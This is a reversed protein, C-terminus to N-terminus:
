RAWQQRKDVRSARWSSIWDLTPTNSSLFSMAHSNPTEIDHLFSPLLPSVTSVSRTLCQQAAKLREEKNLYPYTRSVDTAQFFYFLFLISIFQNSRMDNTTHNFSSAWKLIYERQQASQPPAVTPLAFPLHPQPPQLHSFIENARRTSQKKSATKTTRGMQPGRHM